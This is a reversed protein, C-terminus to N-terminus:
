SKNKNKNFASKNKLTLCHLNSFNNRIVKLLLDILKMKLNFITLPAKFKKIKLIISKKRSMIKM